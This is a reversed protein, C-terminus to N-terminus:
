PMKQSFRIHDMYMLRAHYVCGVLGPIDWDRVLNVMCILFASKGGASHRESNQPAGYPTGKKSAQGIGDKELFLM